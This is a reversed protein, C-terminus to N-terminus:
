KDIEKEEKKFVFFVSAVISAVLLVGLLINTTFFVWIKAMVVTDWFLVLGSFLCGISFVLVAGAGIDKAMGAFHDHKADPKAVAREIASNVLELSLMGAICIIIVLYEIRTFNYFASFGLVYIAMVVHFRFNREEAVAVVIGNYAYCFSKLFKLFQKKM